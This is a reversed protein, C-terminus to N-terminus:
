QQHAVARIERKIRRTDQRAARTIKNADEASIEGRVLQLMTRALNTRQRRLSAVLPALSDSPTM